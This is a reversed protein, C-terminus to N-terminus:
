LFELYGIAGEGGGGGERERTKQFDLISRKEKCLHSEPNEVFHHKTPSFSLSLSLSFSSSNPQFELSSDRKRWVILSGPSEAVDLM